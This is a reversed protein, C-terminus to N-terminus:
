PKASLRAVHVALLNVIDALEILKRGLYMEPPDCYPDPLGQLSKLGRLEVVLAYARAFCHEADEITQGEIM